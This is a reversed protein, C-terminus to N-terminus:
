LIACRERSGPPQGSLYRGKRRKAHIDIRSDEKDWDTHTGVDNETTQSCCEEAVVTVCQDQHDNDEVEHEVCVGGVVEDPGWSFHVFHRELRVIGQDKTHDLKARTTTGDKEVLSVPLTGNSGSGCSTPNGVHRRAAVNPLPPATARRITRKMATVEHAEASSIATEEAMIQTNPRVMATKAQIQFAIPMSRPQSNRTMPSMMPPATKGAAKAMVQLPCLAAPAIVPAKPPRITPIAAQSATALTYKPSTVMAVVPVSYAVKAPLRPATADPSMRVTATERMLGWFKSQAMVRLMLASPGVTTSDCGQRWRLVWIGGDGFVFVGFASGVAEDFFRWVRKAASEFKCTNSSEDPQTTILKIQTNTLVAIETTNGTTSVAPNKFCNALSTNPPFFPL